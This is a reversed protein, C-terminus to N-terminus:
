HGSLGAETTAFSLPQASVFTTVLSAPRAAAAAGAANGGGNGGTALRLLLSSTGQPLTLEVERPGGSPAAPAEALVTKGDLWATLSAGSEVVLRAKQEVPSTVATFAYAVNRAPDAALDSLDALGEANAVIRRWPGGRGGPGNRPADLDVKAAPDIARAGNEEAVPGIVHYQGVISVPQRLTALFALLDVLESESFAQALGEPMLSVDSSKRAEIDAPRLSIRQGDATKIVLRDPTDEVPLGTLVRGDELSLILARYSYGIAASPNLISRLLEDKGYKTGITSLDPGVWQGQGRVRHCGACANLGARFFTLRGKGPDGERGLLVSVPPLPRGGAAKPLPLVAAAEERLARGLPLATHLLMTAETKLDDPLTGAKAMDLIRRAGGELPGLSRLAERRIGLPYERTLVLERLRGSADYLRPSTRVAAEALADSSPRGRADGILRDLLTAAGPAKVAGLGEVAAVRLPEPLSADLAVAELAQGYRPDRAAIALQVGQPKAERDALRSGIFAVVPEAGRASNWEGELKRALIAGLEHRRDASTERAAMEALTAGARPDKIQGIVDDAAQRLEPASLSPLVSAVFRLSEPRRLRWALGLNKSLATVPLDPAGAPLFAENRDTPFYPPLAVAGERGEKLADSPGYLSGDLLKVLFADERSDLALGLAELYWRDQGDWAAALRRLAEGVPKTPLNRIALILERRVGADPDDALPLLADLHALAAPPRKAAPNAYEVRGNERCDRGLMRVALERIRPDADKLAAVAPADGKLGALVQLARGRHIPEGDRFLEELAAVGSAGEAILSSRAADRAAVVPSKLAAIRGATTAFDPAPPKSAKHGKPAVRFIRGTNQDSFAHGGVGADYWDAVIISGDPAACADVPRFWPDDSGLLVKYETRYSAGKRTIPFFNVQRSGADVELVAGFYGQEKPLLSGEYVMIGTPSGNGTGVLKPIMGPVDEGWHRPSGPTKYGYHGGDMTWIVRCGRNGDDDNDSVFITGFSSLSAEYNNRQRDCIIEFETGDRNVRLTNALQDTRVHRGSKDVVDFNQQRESHDQQVSCCGDGHTFYLKGDLGLVMGHVGHDSDVGGFGTLLPYRRDAVDDGDTDELVMLNPSNGIFVRCGTYKGAADHHEEVALGMPVPFIKDAFVTVKDAKGDGDTDELIKIRDADEMRHFRANGGRTLRYNQGEAVWVRGRSDVDINTPNAIMPEAAWLTAELGEAPKLRRTSEAATMQALAPSPTGLWACTSAILAATVPAWHISTPRAPRRSTKPLM